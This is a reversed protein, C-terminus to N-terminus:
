SSLLMPISIKTFCETRTNITECMKKLQTFINIFEYKYLLVIVCLVSNVSHCYKYYIFDKMASICKVICFFEIVPCFSLFFLLHGPCMM